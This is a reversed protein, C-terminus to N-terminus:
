IAEALMKKFGELDVAPFSTLNNINYAKIKRKTKLKDLEKIVFVMQEIGRVEVVFTLIQGNKFTLTIVVTSVMEKAIKIAEKTDIWEPM